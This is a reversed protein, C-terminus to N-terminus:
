TNFTIEVTQGTRDRFCGAHVSAPIWEDVYYPIALLKHEGAPLKSVNFGLPGKLLHAGSLGYTSLEFKKDKMEGDVFGHGSRLSLGSFKVPHGDIFYEVRQLYLPLAESFYEPLEVEIRLKEPDEITDGASIGSITMRPVDPLDPPRAPLPSGTLRAVQYFYNWKGVTNIEWNVPISQFGERYNNVGQHYLGFGAGNELAVMMCFVSTDEKNIVPKSGKIRDQAAKVQRGMRDPQGMPTHLLIYDMADFAQDSLEEIRFSSTSVPYLGGCAERAIEIAEYVREGRLMWHDYLPHNSENGIEILINRHGASLLFQMVNTICKRILADDKAMTDQVMVNEDQQPYFLGLMMVMGLRDTEDLIRALRRMYAPKLDGTETYASNIWPHFGARGTPQNGMLNANVMLLGHKRYTALQTIFEDTHREPDWKAYPYEWSVYSFYPNKDTGWEPYRMDVFICNASKLMLLKGKLAASAEPFGAEPTYTKKGNITFNSDEIGVATTRESIM